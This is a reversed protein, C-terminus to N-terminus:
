PQGINKIRRLFEAHYKQKVLLVHEIIKKPPIQVGGGGPDFILHDVGLWLERGVTDCSFYTESM